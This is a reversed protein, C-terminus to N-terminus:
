SNAVTSSKQKPNKGVRFIPAYPKAALSPNQAQFPSMHEPGGKRSLSTPILAGPKYNVAKISAEQLERTAVYEKFTMYKEGCKKNM